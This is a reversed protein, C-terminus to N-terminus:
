SPGRHAAADVADLVIAAAQEITLVAERIEPWSRDTLIAAMEMVDLGGRRALTELSQDHNREAQAEHPALMAWPVSAPIGLSRNRKRLQWSALVPFMRTGPDDSM